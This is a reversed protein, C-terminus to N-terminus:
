CASEVAPAAVVPSMFNLGGAFGDGSLDYGICGCDAVGTRIRGPQGASGCSVQERPM